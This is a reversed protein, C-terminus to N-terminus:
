HSTFKLYSVTGLIAVELIIILILIAKNYLVDRAMRRLINRSNDLQDDANSLRDKTRLLSERQDNLDSLVEAGVAETEIAVQNSRAISEGTRELIATGELLIQRNRAEWDVDGYNYM